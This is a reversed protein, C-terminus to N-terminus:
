VAEKPKKSKISKFQKEVIAYFAPDEDRLATIASKRDIWLDNCAGYSVADSLDKYLDAAWTQWDTNKPEVNPAQDVTKQDDAFPDDEVQETQKPRRLIDLKKTYFDNINDGAKISSEERFRTLQPSNTDWIGMLMQDSESSRMADVFTDRWWKIDGKTIEGFNDTFEYHVMRIVDDTEKAKKEEEQRRSAVYKSDDFMGLHVDSAFGLLSLCKTMADTLSKKPAEEDTFIGNKNKGIFDTHGFHTIEGRKDGWTYWLKARVKHIVAHCLVNGDGDFLPQGNVYAEDIVDVGWGIGMPGFMETARRALYTANTATGKFGGGRNFEKTYKPDTKDVSSWIALNDSM